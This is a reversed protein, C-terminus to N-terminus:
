KLWKLLAEDVDSQERKLFRQIRSVNQEFASIIKTISKCITQVTCHVLCFGRCVDARKKGNSIEHILKVNEKQCEFGRKKKTVTDTM